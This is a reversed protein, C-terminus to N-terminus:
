SRKKKKIQFANYTHKTHIFKKNANRIKFLSLIMLIFGKPLVAVATLTRLNYFKRPIAFLFVLILSIFTTLWLLFWMNSNLFYSLFTIISLIGLLIIRPPQLYQMAKFFYEINGKTFLEKWAPIFNKGFFHFQASLWRRRQKTFVRANQVKEDYVYADPLYETKYNGKLLRMELEKDFGGVVEIAKMMSKFLSYEFAMASGILFSSLGLVRQGKRFISNNIEESVADLVAFNTNLNKATRHGQVAVFKGSSFSNSIKLLFGQQMINDADLICAIDYKEELNNLAYNLARSKTSIKFDKAFLIIDLKKLKEISSKNFSDAIVIIDFKNKPYNHLLASVVVEFIVEDERYAPILLAIRKSTNNKTYKPKYNFLSAFSFIFLNLVSITIYLFIIFQLIDILIHFENNIM